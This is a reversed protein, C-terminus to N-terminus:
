GQIGYGSKTEPCAHLRMDLAQEVVEAEVPNRPPCALLRFRVM